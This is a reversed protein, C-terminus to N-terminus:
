DLVLTNDKYKGYTWDINTTSCKPCRLDHYVSLCADFEEPHASFGCGLCIAKLEKERETNENNEENM